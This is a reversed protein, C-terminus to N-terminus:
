LIGIYHVYTHIYTHIYTHTHVYIYIYIYINITTIVTITKIIINIIVVINKTNNNGINKNTCVYVILMDIHSPHVPIEGDDRCFSTSFRMDEEAKDGM